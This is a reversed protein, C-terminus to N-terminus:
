SSLAEFSNQVFLPHVVDARAVLGPERRTNQYLRWALVLSPEPQSTTVTVLAPLNAGRITLDQSVATRLARFSAYVDRDGVDAAATIEADFLATVQARLALAETSSAPYYVACVVALSCLATRRVLAATAVQAAQAGPDALPPAAPTTIIRVLLTVADVPDLTTARLANMLSQVSFALTQTADSM